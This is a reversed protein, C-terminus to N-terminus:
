QPTACPSAAAWPTSQAATVARLPRLIRGAVLWGLAVAVVTMIALAIGCQTLLQHLVAHGQDNRTQAQTHASRTIRPGGM